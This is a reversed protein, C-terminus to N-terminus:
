RLWPLPKPGGRLDGIGIRSPPKGFTGSRWPNTGNSLASDLLNKGAFATTTVATAVLMSVEWFRLTKKTNSDTSRARAKGVGFTALLLAVVALIEYDNLEFMALFWVYAVVTNGIITELRHEKQTWVITLALIGLAMLHKM